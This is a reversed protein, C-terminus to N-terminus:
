CERPVATRAGERSSCQRESVNVILYGAPDISTPYRDLNPGDADLRVGTFDYLAGNCDERFLLTSGRAASSMREKYRDVLGPLAPDASPVPHVRCRRAPNARNAADLDALALFSGDLLRAVYLNRQSVYQVTGPAYAEALELRIDGTDAGSEWYVVLCSGIGFLFVLVALATFCGLFVPPRPSPLDDHEM